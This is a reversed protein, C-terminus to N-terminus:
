CLCNWRIKVRSKLWSSVVVAVDPMHCLLPHYGGSKDQVTKAWLGHFNSLVTSSNTDSFVNTLEMSQPYGVEDPSRTVTGNYSIKSM